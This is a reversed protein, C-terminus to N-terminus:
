ENILQAVKLTKITTGLDELVKVGESIYIDKKLQEQWRERKEVIDETPIQQGAEPLWQFEYESEFEDLKDFRKVYAQDHDREAKYKDYSLPYELDNQQSKIWQAQEDILKLYGNQALRERSNAIAYDYNLMQGWPRYAAPTIRDWSLPNDQDKEGMDVYAYRDIVLIDSKVGELQTSRGNVRYFKDTTIKLAGLDGYTNSSMIRNLDVLNQVTGKGYTQKSGVIIARKYDQLAAALIESSSASFENVLIVLPGEWVIEPDTDSLVEKKGGTSKVQVVPGEDIFYGTMDVATKLSGGGNNRLDLIIGDVNKSKLQEIENKVDTASNRDTFDEFNVYFKPLNILGYNKDGSKILSSKAFTEEIEIIDRTVIVEEITGDVRKVSLFVQTGKPGKILKVADDLRMGSIDVPAEDKQSVTLIIDGVELLKDRWVPGGSIVEVIRVEQNRKQLRAGIGEFQGSINMDFRDKDNPAFYVTHPDYLETITNVYLSFWDKRELDDNSEFFSNNNELLLERTEAEIEVDTQIVYSSDKELKKLEEEKKDTFRSLAALKFRKRWRKKMEAMSAPYPLDDYDLSITEEVNFDFPTELLEKYFGRVDQLREMFREYVLNFFQVESNKIQDDIKNKYYEFSKIDAALFFRHEGDLNDLFDKYVKESFSDDMNKPDYHGKELVYTIIEILLKDKDPNPSKSTIGFVLGSILLCGVIWAISRLMIKMKRNKM